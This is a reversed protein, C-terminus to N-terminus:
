QAAAKRNIQTATPRYKSLDLLWRTCGAPLDSSTDREFGLSPYLESVVGNKPTPAYTAVIQRVGTRRATEVAINMGEHELQRGFVRCSMVWTDIELRDNRGDVPLMLMASVLGNDGFRDSLRLQLSLAGPAALHRTIQEATYRRTTPNFQNTKNVLQTVRPLDVSRIPEAILEMTLGRLYEDMSQVSARLSERQADQSYSAARQQDEATFSTAEFYGADALCRVYGAVDEPLEPVAVEPLAARIRGREAPNDDVFVLSDLGINLREAITLLNRAKDEWNAVFVGIDSRKLLMEPHSAFAQEALTPDNKSCIALVIGREKLLRAYRQVELHAEGAGSGQGLVLGEIGDDGLVGGWLTNDLDMVLCKKSAGHQAGIIRALLEGFMPAAQPAIEQKAQLMRRADFWADRGDRESARAVDLLAVGEAAAAGSLLENLRAVIRDPSAPVLRDFSGFLPEAVNLFTQQIVSAGLDARTRQWLSALDAVVEHLRADVQAASSGPHLAPVVHGAALCLVVTQPAFARLAPPPDLIEQRFQGFGGCQVDILLNRRLGAVRVAPPLHELTASGLLALRHRSTGSAVPGLSSLARDLQITEIFNLRLQALSILRRLPDAASGTRPVERLRAAFDHPPPLWHLM